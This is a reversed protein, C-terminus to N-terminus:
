RRTGAHRRPHRHPAGKCCAAGEACGSKGDTSCAAHDACCAAEVTAKAQDNVTQAGATAYAYGSLMLAITLVLTKITKM